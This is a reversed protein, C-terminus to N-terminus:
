RNTRSELAMLALRQYDEETKPEPESRAKGPSVMSNTLTKQSEAQSSEAGNVAKESAVPMNIAPKKIKTLLAAAANVEKELDKEVARYAIEISEEVTEGPLENNERAYQELYKFARVQDGKAMTYPLKDANKSAYEAFKGELERRANLAREQQLQNKLERFENVWEPEKEANKAAFGGEKEAPVHEGKLIQRTVDDYSFGKAQLLDMPTKANEYRELLKLRSELEQEKKRLGAKERALSDFGRKLQEPAEDEKKEEDKKEEPKAEPAAEVKTEEAVPAEKPPLAELAALAAAQFENETTPAAPTATAPAAPQANDAM